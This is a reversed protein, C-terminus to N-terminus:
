AVQLIDVFNGGAADAHYLHLTVCPQHGGAVVGHHLAHHHVGIRRAHPLRAADIQPQNEALMLDAAGFTGAAAIALQLGQAVVVIQQPIVVYLIELIDGRIEGIGHYANFVATNATHAANLHALLHLTHLDPVHHTGTDTSGHTHTPEACQALGVAGEAALANGMTGHARQLLMVIGTFYPIRQRVGFLNRHHLQRRRHSGRPRFVVM